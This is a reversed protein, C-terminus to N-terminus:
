APYPIMGITRKKYVSKLADTLSYESKEESKEVKQKSLHYLLLCIMANLLLDEGNGEGITKKMEELM